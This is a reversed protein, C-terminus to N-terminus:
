GHNRGAVDLNQGMIQWPATQWGKLPQLIMTITNGKRQIHYNGAVIGATEDAGSSFRGTLAINNNLAVLDPIPPSFEFSVAHGANFGICKKIEIHEVNNVLEYRTQQEQLWEKHDPRLATLVGNHPYNWCGMIPTVAFRALYVKQGNVPIPLKKAKRSQGGINIAIDAGTQPVFDMGQMYFVPFFEFSVADSGGIPALFGESWMHREHEKISFEVSTGTKDRMILAADLGSETVDLHYRMDPSITFQDHGTQRMVFAADTYYSDAPGNHRYLLVRAGTGRADDFTQLEICTYDADDAVDVLMLKAMPEVSVNLPSYFVGTSPLAYIDASNMRNGLFKFHNVASAKPNISLIQKALFVLIGVFGAIICILFIPNM